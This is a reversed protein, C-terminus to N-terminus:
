ALRPNPNANPYPNPKHNPKRYPIPNLGQHMMCRRMVLEGKANTKLGMKLWEVSSRKPAEADEEIETVSSQIEARPRLQASARRHPMPITTIRQLAIHKEIKNDIIHRINSFTLKNLLPPYCLFIHRETGLM